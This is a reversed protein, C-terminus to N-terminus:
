DDKALKAIGAAIAVMLFDLVTDVFPISFLQITALTAMISTGALMARRRCWDRVADM